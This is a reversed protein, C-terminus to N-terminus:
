QVACFGLFQPRLVLSERVWSALPIPTTQSSKELRPLMEFVCLSWLCTGKSATPGNPYCRIDVHGGANLFLPKGHCHGM